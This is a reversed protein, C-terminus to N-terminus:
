LEELRYLTGDEDRVLAQGTKTTGIEEYLKGTPNWHSKPSALNSQPAPVRPAPEGHEAVWEDVQRAMEMIKNVDTLPARRQVPRPPEPPLDPVTVEVPPLASTIPLATVTRKPEAAATEVVETPQYVYIGQMISRIDLNHRSKLNYIASSVQVDSISFRDTLDEITVHQGPHAQFYEKVMTLYNHSTVKSKPSAVRRQPHPPPSTHYCVQGLHPRTILFEPKSKLYSIADGCTKDDLGLAAAIDEIELTQNPYQRLYNFVQRTAGRNEITRRPKEDTVVTATAKKEPETM